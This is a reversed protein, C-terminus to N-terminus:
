DIGDSGSAKGLKTRQLRKELAERSIEKVQNEEEVLNEIQWHADM